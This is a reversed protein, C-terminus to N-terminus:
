RPSRSAPNGASTRWVTWRSVPAEVELRLRGDPPRSGSLRVAPVCSRLWRLWEGDEHIQARGTLHVTSHNWTPVVKDLEAKGAYRSPSIYAQSCAAVLLAPARHRIQRRHPNARAM